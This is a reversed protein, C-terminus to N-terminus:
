YVPLLKTSSINQGQTNWPHSISYFYIDSFIKEKTKNNKLLLIKLAGAYM